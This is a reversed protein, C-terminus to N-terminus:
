HEVEVAAVHGGDGMTTHFIRVGSFFGSTRRSCGSSNRARTRRPALVCSVLGTAASDSNSGRGVEPRLVLLLRDLTPLTSSLRPLHSFPIANYLNM